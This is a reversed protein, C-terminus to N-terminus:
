WGDRDWLDQQEDINEDAHYCLPDVRKKTATNYVDIAEVRTDYLNFYKKRLAFYMQVTVRFFHLPNPLDDVYIVVDYRKQKM